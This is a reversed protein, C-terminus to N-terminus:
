FGVGLLEEEGMDTGAEFVRFGEKGFSGGDEGVGEEGGVACLKFYM